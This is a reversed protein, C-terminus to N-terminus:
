CAELHLLRLGRTWTKLGDITKGTIGLFAICVRLDLEWVLTLTGEWFALRDIKTEHVGGTRVTERYGDLYYVM